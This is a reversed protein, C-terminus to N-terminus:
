FFKRNFFDPLKGNPLFSDIVLLLIALALVYQFRDEYDTFMKKGLEKKEMKSLSELLDTLGFKATGARTYTGGGSEAVTALMEENIKTLITEGNADKKYGVIRGGALIPIPAGQPLGVGITHIKIGKAAAEKAAELAQEEHDEGDSIVIIARNPAPQEAFGSLATEIAAGISTGQVPVMDTNVTSLFLKAASYDTTLPLQTYAKGAFVVLGMKDTGLEDILKFIAQKSREIRSPQIDTALMSNSVDLCIVIEVGERKVEEYKSGIQPNAMTLVLLFFAVMALAFKWRRRKPNQDPLVVSHLAEDALAQLRKRRIMEARIFLLFLPILVTLALLYESHEFRIM